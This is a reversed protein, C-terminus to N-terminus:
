KSTPVRSLKHDRKYFNRLYNQVEEVRLIQIQFSNILWPSDSARFQIKQESKIRTYIYIKINSSM